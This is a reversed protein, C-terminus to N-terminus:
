EKILRHTESGRGSLIRVLHLGEELNSIDVRLQPGRCPLSQVLQGGPNYIEIRSNGADLNRFELFSSAPNPFLVAGRISAMDKEPGSWTGPDDPGSIVANVHDVLEQSGVSVDMDEPLDRLYWLLEYVLEEGDPIDRCVGQNELEIYDDAVWLEIEGEGPAFDAQDVDEFTKIYLRREDDVHAFWGDSGDAFFKLGTGDESERLYWTHGIAEETAGSLEGWCGGPGTPWFSLGGVPVRTLEWLGKKISKGSTNVLSYKLSITTDEPNAWFRKVFHFRDGNDVAADPGTFVMTDGEIAAEYAHHDWHFNEPNWKWESQPSPWLTAGWLFYSSVMSATVMFESDDIALSSIKAGEEADVEFFLNGVELSYFSGDQVPSHQAELEAKPVIIILSAILGAIFSPSLTKM